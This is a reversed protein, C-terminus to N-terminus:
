GNFVKLLWRLGAYGLWIAIINVGLLPWAGCLATFFLGAWVGMCPPCSILRTFFTNSKLMLFTPFDQFIGQRKQEFYEKALKTWGFYEPFADTEFWIYFAVIVLSILTIM